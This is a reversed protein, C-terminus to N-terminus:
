LILTRWMGNSFFTDTWLYRRMFYYFRDKIQEPHLETIFDFLILLPEITAAIKGNDNEIGLGGNIRTFIIMAASMDAEIENEMASVLSSSAGHKFIIHSLKHAYAYFIM